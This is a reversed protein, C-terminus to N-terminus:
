TQDAKPQQSYAAPRGYLIWRLNDPAVWAPGWFIVKALGVLFYTGAVVVM